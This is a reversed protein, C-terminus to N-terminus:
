YRLFLSVNAYHSTRMDRDGTVGGSLTVGAEDFRFTAFGGARGAQYADNGELRTEIGVDLKELLKYGTRLGLKYTNFTSSFSFDGAIWHKDSISLWAELAAKAGYTFNAVPNDPDRPDIIHQESSAGAFAKLTLKNWHFQYGLLVDSFTKRGTYKVHEPGNLGRVLKRYSYQGYGGTSRLRWGVDEIDGTLAVTSGTYVSWSNALMEGGAWTERWLVFPHRDVAHIVRPQPAASDAHGPATSAFGHLWLAAAVLGCLGRIAHKIPGKTFQRIYL